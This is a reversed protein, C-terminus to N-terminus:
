KRLWIMGEVMSSEKKGAPVNRNFGTVKEPVDIMKVDSPLGAMCESSFSIRNDLYDGYDDAMGLAQQQVAENFYRRKSAM